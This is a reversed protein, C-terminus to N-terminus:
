NESHFKRAVNIWYELTNDFVAHLLPIDIENIYGRELIRKVKPHIFDSYFEDVTIGIIRSKRKLHQNKVFDILSDYRRLVCPVNNIADRSIAGSSLRVMEDVFKDRPKFKGHYWAWATTNSVGLLQAAERLSKYSDFFKRIENLSTLTVKDEVPRGRKEYSNM